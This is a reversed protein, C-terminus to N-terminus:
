GDFDTGFNSNAWRKAENGDFFPGKVTDNRYDKRIYSMIDDPTLYSMYTGGSWRADPQGTWQRERWKTNFKEVKGIWTKDEDEHHVVVFFCSDNGSDDEDHDEGLVEGDDEDMNFVGYCRDEGPIEAYVLHKGMEVRGKFQIKDALTPYKKKVAAMWEEQDTFKGEVLAVLKKLLEM